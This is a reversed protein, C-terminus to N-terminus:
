LFHSDFRLLFYDLFLIIQSRSLYHQFKLNFVLTTSQLIISSASVTKYFQIRFLVIVTLKM